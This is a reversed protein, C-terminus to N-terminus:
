DCDGAVLDRKTKSLVFRDSPNEDGLQLSQREKREGLFPADARGEKRAWPFRLCSAASM